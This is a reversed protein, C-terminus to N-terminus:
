GNNNGERNDVFLQGPLLNNFQEDTEVVTVEGSISVISFEYNPTVNMTEKVCVSMTGEADFLIYGVGLNGAITGISNLEETTDFIISEGITKPLTMTTYGINNVM